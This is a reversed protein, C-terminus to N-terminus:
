ANGAPVGGGINMLDKALIEVIEYAVSPQLKTQVRYGVHWFQEDTVCRPDLPSIIPASLDVCLEELDPHNFNKGFLTNDGPISVTLELHNGSTIYIYGTYGAETTWKKYIRGGQVVM